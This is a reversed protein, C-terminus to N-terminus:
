NLEAGSEALYYELKSSNYLKIPVRHFMYIIGDQTHYALIDKDGLRYFLERSMFIVEPLKGYHECHYHEIHMHIRNAYTEM